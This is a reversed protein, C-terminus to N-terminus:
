KVKVVLFKTLSWFRNTDNIILSLNGDDGTIFYSTGSPHKSILEAKKAYLPITKLTEPDNIRIFYDKNFDTGLQGKVLIKQDKLEKDTGFCYYVTKIIAEQAKITQEQEQSYAKWNNVSASLNSVNESLAAIQTDKKALEEQLAALAITKDTVEARLREITKKLESSQINSNSLKKELNLIRDKNEQLTKTILQMDNAIRDRTSPTMESRTASTVTLYNEASKISQFGDEVDNLISLMENLENVTQLHVLRLSDNQSQLEKYESSSKGCSSLILSIITMGLLIKKM